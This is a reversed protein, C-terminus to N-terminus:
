FENEHHWGKKFANMRAILEPEDIGSLKMIRVVHAVLQKCIREDAMFQGGCWLPLCSFDLNAGKLNAGGFDAGLLNAQRLDSDQFYALRLDAGQLDAGRLDVGHLDAREGSPIDDLWLKHKELINSLQEKTIQRM